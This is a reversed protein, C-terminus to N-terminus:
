SFFGFLSTFGGSNKLQYGSKQEVTGSNTIIFDVCERLFDNPLRTENAKNNIGKFNSLTIAM